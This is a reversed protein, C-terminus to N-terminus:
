AIPPRLQPEDGHSPPAQDRLVIPARPGDNLGSAIPEAVQLWGGHAHVCHCAHDSHGSQGPAREGPHDSPANVLAGTAASGATDGHAIHAAAHDNAGDVRLLEEHEADGDHVDALLGEANFFGFSLMLVFAVFRRPLPTTLRTQPPIYM